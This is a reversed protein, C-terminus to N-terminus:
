RRRLRPRIFKSTKSLAGVRVLSLRERTRAAIEPQLAGDGRTRGDVTAAFASHLAGTELRGATWPDPSLVGHWHLPNRKRHDLITRRRFTKANGGPAFGAAEPIPRQRVPYRRQRRERSVTRLSGRLADDSRSSESRVAHGPQARQASEGSDGPAARQAGADSGDRDTHCTRELRQAADFRRRWDGVGRGAGTPSSDSGLTEHDAYRLRCINVVAVFKSAGREGAM